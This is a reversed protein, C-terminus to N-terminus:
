TLQQLSQSALKTLQSKFTGFLMCQGKPNLHVMEKEALQHKQNRREEAEWPCCVNLIYDVKLTQPISEWGQYYPVTFDPKRSLDSEADEIREQEHLESLQQTLYADREEKTSFAPTMGMYGVIQYNKLRLPGSLTPNYFVVLATKM